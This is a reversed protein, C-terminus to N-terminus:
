NLFPHELLTPCDPREFPSIQMMSRLFDLAQNKEEETIGDLFEFSKESCRHKGSNDALHFEYPRNQLITENLGVLEALDVEIEGDVPIKTYGGLALITERLRDETQPHLHQSAWRCPYFILRAFMVGVSWVDFASISMVIFEHGEVEEMWAEPPVISFAYAADYAKEGLAIAGNWDFLIASGDHDVLVNSNGSLDLNNIGVSHAHALQELMSRMFIRIEELTHLEQYALGKGETLPVISVALFPVKRLRRQYKAPISVPVPLASSCSSTEDDDDDNAGCFFPNSINRSAAILPLIKLRRAKEKDASLRELADIEKEAYSLYTTLKMLMKQSKPVSHMKHWWDPLEVFCAINISGKSHFDGIKVDEFLRLRRQQQQAVIDSPQDIVGAALTRQETDDQEIPAMSINHQIVLYLPCLLAFTRFLSSMRDVKAM